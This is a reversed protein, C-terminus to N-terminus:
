KAAGSTPVPPVRITLLAVTVPSSWNSGLVESLLSVAVMETFVGGGAPGEIVDRVASSGSSPSAINPLPSVM